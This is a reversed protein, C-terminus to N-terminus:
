PLCIQSGCLPLGGPLLNTSARAAVTCPCSALLGGDTREAVEAVRQEM